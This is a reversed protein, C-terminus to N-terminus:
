TRSHDPLLQSLLERVHADIEDRIVRVEELPRDSPDALDWDLYRKGPYIACADGCGMTVIVDSARVVDDTLPKPFAETLTVGIEAMAETVVPHIEGGPESGASRVHVRGGSRDNMLAAAMQSRGANRVCIFLVEPTPTSRLGQARAQASLRERAFRETLVLTFGSVTSREALLDHSERVVAAVTERSFVGEYGYALDDVIRALSAAEHESASQTSM